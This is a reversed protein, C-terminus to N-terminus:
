QKTLCKWYKTLCGDSPRKEQMMLIYLIRRSVIKFGVHVSTSNVLVTSLSM